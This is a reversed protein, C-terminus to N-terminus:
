RSKSMTMECSMEISSGKGGGRRIREGERGGDLGCLVSRRDSVKPRLAFTPMNTQHSVIGSAVLRLRVIQWVDCAHPLLRSQALGAAAFM